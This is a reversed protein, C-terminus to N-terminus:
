TLTIKDERELTVIAKKWHPARGAFPTRSAARRAASM